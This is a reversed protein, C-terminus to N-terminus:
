GLPDSFSATATSPQDDNLGRRWAAHRVRYTKRHLAEIMEREKGESPDYVVLFAAMQKTRKRIMSSLDATVAV